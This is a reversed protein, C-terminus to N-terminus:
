LLKFKKLTSTLPRSLLAIADLSQAITLAKGKLRPTPVQLSNTVVDRKLYDRKLQAEADIIGPLNSYYSYAGGRDKVYVHESYRHSYCVDIIKIQPKPEMAKIWDGFNFFWDVVYSLKLLEYGTSLIQTPSIGWVALSTADVMWPYYAYRITYCAKNVKTTRQNTSRRMSSDNAFWDANVIGVTTSVESVAGRASHLSGMLTRVDLAATEALDSVSYLLPGLAYRYEMWTDAVVESTYRDVKFRIRIDRALDVRGPKERSRPSAPRRPRSCAAEGTEFLGWKAVSAELPTYLPKPARRIQRARQATRYCDSIADSMHDRAAKFPSRMFKLTEDLEGLEVAGLFPSDSVRSLASTLARDKMSQSPVPPDAYRRAQLWLLAGIGYPNLYRLWQGDAYLYYRFQLPSSIVENKDLVVSHVPPYIIHTQNDRLLILRTGKPLDTEISQTIGKFAGPIVQHSVLTINTGNYRDLYGPPCVNGLQKTRKYSM